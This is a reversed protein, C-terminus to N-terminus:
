WPLPFRAGLFLSAAPVLLALLVAGVVTWTSVTGRPPSRLSSLCVPALVLLASVLGPMVSWVLLSVLVHSVANLLLALAACALAAGSWAPRRLVAFAALAAFALTLLLLASGFAPTSVPFGGPFRGPVSAWAPLDALYEELNHLAFAVTLLPWLLLPRASPREAGDDTRM